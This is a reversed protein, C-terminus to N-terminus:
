YPMVQNRLDQNLKPNLDPQSFSHFDIYFGLFGTHTHTHTHTHTTLPTARHHVGGLEM